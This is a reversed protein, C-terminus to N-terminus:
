QSSATIRRGTLLECRIRVYEASEDDWSKLGLRAADVGLAGPEVRSARGVALVSWGRLEIEDYFDTEFAVINGSTAVNLKTGRGTRFVIYDDVFAYTVPLIVPLAGMTIGVRGLGGRSLFERCDSESLVQVNQDILM